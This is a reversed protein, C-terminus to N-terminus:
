EETSPKFDFIINWDKDMLKIRGNRYVTFREDTIFELRARKPTTNQDEIPPLKKWPAKFTEAKQGERRLTIKNDELVLRGEGNDTEWEVIIKNNVEKMTFSIESFTEKDAPSSTRTSSTQQSTIKDRGVWDGGSHHVDGRVVAGGGSDISNDETRVCKGRADFIHKTGCHNCFGHGNREVVIDGSGCAECKIIM